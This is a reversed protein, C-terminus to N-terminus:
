PKAWLLGTPLEVDNTLTAYSTYTNKAYAYVAVPTDINSVVASGKKYISVAYPFTYGATITQSPTTSGAPYVLVKDGEGDTVWLDGSKREVAVGVPESVDQLNLPTVTTTGAAIEFVQLAGFDAVFLDGKKDLAVGFPDTLGQGTITTTPSTSGAAYETISAPYNSVYITGKKDVAVGLPNSVGDTLATSPTTSGKAFEEITNGGCNTAVYLTGHKDIAEGYPCGVPMPITATPAPNSALASAVYVNTAAEEQDAVFILPATTPYNPHVRHGRSTNRNPVKGLFPVGAHVFSVSPVIPGTGRVSQSQVTSGPGAPPASFPAAGGCGGVAFLAAVVLARRPPFAHM